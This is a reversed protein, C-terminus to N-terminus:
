PSPPTGPIPPPTAAFLPALEAVSGASEWGSMGETWVLSARTLEGAQIQRRLEALPFPGSPQGGQAVHFSREQPIPPPAAGGAAEGALAEGIQKAMAMGMGMGIGAGADGGPNEAAARMAEAAQFQAYKRLDGVIGM